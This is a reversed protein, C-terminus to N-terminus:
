VSVWANCWGKANVEKGPFIACGGWGEESGAQYLKCNDCFQKSGAEGARRPYKAVDVQTADHGKSRFQTAPFDLSTPLASFNRVWQLRMRRATERSEDEALVYDALFTTLGEAWNGTEYSVYVGNGWWNHLVEHALSRGQMYRSHLIQRAIYAVGPYGLGM